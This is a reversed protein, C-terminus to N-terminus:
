TPSTNETMYKLQGGKNAVLSGFNVGKQRMRGITRNKSM